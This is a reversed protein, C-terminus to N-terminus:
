VVMGRGGYDEPRRGLHWTGQKPLYILEYVREGPAMVLFHRRGDEEWQRGIAHIRHHRGRWIFNLPRISGDPEFRAEVTIGNNM